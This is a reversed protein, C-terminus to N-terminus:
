GEFDPGDLTKPLLFLRKNAPQISIGGISCFTLRWDAVGLQFRVSLNFPQQIWNLQIRAASHVATPIVMMM